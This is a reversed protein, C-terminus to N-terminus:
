IPPCSKRPARRLVCRSCHCQIHNRLTPDSLPPLSVRSSMPLIQVSSFFKTQGITSSSAGIRDPACLFPERRINEMLAWHWADKEWANLKGQLVNNNKKTENRETSMFEFKSKKKAARMIRSDCSTVEFDVLKRQSMETNRTRRRSHRSMAFAHSARTDPWRNITARSNRM